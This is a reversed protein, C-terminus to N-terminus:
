SLQTGQCASEAGVCAPRVLRNSVENQSGGAQCWGWGHTIALSALRLLPEFCPLSNMVRGVELPMGRWVGWDSVRLHLYIGRSYRSFSGEWTCGRVMGTIITRSIGSWIIIYILVM